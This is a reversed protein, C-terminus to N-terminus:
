AQMSVCMECAQRQLCVSSLLGTGSCIKWWHAVVGNKVAMEESGKKERRAGM